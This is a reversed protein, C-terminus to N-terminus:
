EIMIQIKAKINELFSNISEENKKDWQFIEQHNVDFHPRKTKNKHKFASKECIYIVPLKLGEAYGAEWYAGANCHTLDCILFRSQKIAVRLKNDILNEKSNIDTLLLLDFGAEKVVPKLKENIFKKQEDDFQMAMFAQKSEKNVQRLEEFRQWGAITLELNFRQTNPTQHNQLLGKNGLYEVICLVSREEVGGIWNRLQPYGEAPRPNIELQGGLVRTKRGVYEILLDAQRAPTPLELNKLVEEFHITPAGTYPTRTYFISQQAAAFGLKARAITRDKDNEWTQHIYAESGFYDLAFEGLCDFYSLEGAPKGFHMDGCFPCTFDFSM